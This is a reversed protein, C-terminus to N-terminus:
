LVCKCLIINRSGNAIFYNFIKTLNNKQICDWNYGFAEAAQNDRSESAVLVSMMEHIRNYNDIDEVLQGAALIRMRRFFCHPGGLVYLYQGSTGNNRVDFMIRFTNVDLWNDGTLLIRILKTGGTAKYINSGQPHYTVSRRDVVYSAGPQMKFSLGDILKDEVGNAMAEVM